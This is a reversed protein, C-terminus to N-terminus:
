TKKDGLDKIRILCGSGARESVQYYFNGRIGPDFHFDPTSLRTIAGPLSLLIFYIILINGNGIYLAGIKVTM